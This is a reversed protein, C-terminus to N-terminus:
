ILGGDVSIVQGTIYSAADSALFAVLNAVERPQGVRGAPVASLYRERAAAPMDALMDTEILGPCVANVLVGKVALERSLARTLGELGAKSAAYNAQGPLPMRASPSSINIIRGWKRILMGRVAARTCYYAADLNTTLVDHWRPADMLMIHTDRAIGANNVLIDAPGLASAAATFFAVVSAENAVDCQGAWARGGTGTIEEVLAAAAAAQSKYAIAVAAGRVALLEAIGRGIGRSGGTVVAVRGTLQHDDYSM